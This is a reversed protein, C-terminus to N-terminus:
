RRRRLLALTGLGLLAASMPEPVVNNEFFGVAAEHQIETHTGAGHIFFIPESVPNVSLEMAVAYFGSPIADEATVGNGELTFDLHQHLFGTPSTTNIVFGPVDVNSGDVTANFAASPAKSFEWTVGSAPAFDVAGIGDWYWLNAGVGDIEFTKATFTVGSSGPLASFGAPVNESSLANFGPEDVTYQWTDGVVNFPGLEFEGEYVRTDTNTVTLTNFDFGGTVIQGDKILMLLDVHAHEEEASAQGAFVFLVVALGYVLAEKTRM